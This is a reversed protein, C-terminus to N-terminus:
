LGKEESAGPEVLFLLHVALVRKLPNDFLNNLHDWLRHRLNHVVWQQLGGLHWMGLNSAM